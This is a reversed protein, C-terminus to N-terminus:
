SPSSVFLCLGVTIRASQETRRGGGGRRGKEFAGVTGSGYVHWKQAHLLVQTRARNRLVSHIEGGFEAAASTTHKCFYAGVTGGSLKQESREARLRAGALKAWPRAAGPGAHGAPSAPARAPRILM